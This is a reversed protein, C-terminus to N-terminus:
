PPFGKGATHSLSCCVQGVSIFALTVDDGNAIVWKFLDKNAACLLSNKMFCVQDERSQWLTVGLDVKRHM